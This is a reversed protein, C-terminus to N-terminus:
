KVGEGSLVIQGGRRIIMLKGQIWFVPLQQSIKSKTSKENNSLNKM